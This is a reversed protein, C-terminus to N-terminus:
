DENTFSLKSDNSVVLRIQQGNSKVLSNVSEAGDVFQPVSVQYFDSIVNCIDIGANIQAATNLDSFPIGQYTCECFPKPTGDLNRRFMSWKVFSFHENVKDELIQCETLSYETALDIITDIRDLQEQLETKEKQIGQIIGQIKDYSEKKTKLKNLAVITCALTDIEQKLKAITEDDSSESPSEMEKEISLIEAKVQKYNENQKALQEYTQPTQESQLTDLYKTRESITEKTRTIKDSIEGLQENYADINDNIEKVSDKLESAKKIFTEKMKAIKSNFRYESEQMLEQLKEQPYFQGCTPCVNDNVDWEWRMSKIRNWEDAGDKMESEKEALTEKCRKILQQTSDYAKNLDSLTDEAESVLRRANRIDNEYNEEQSRSENRMSTEMNSLRKYAFDLKKKISALRITDISGAKAHALQENLHAYEENDKALQEEVDDWGEKEPLLKDIEALRVPIDELKGIVEKRTYGYHKIVAEASGRSVLEDNLSSLDKSSEACIENFDIPPVMTTLLARQKDWPMSAFYTPSSCMQFVQLGCFKDIEYSFDGATVNDGGIYYTFTNKVTGDRSVSDMLKRKIIIDVGDVSLLLEVSHPIEPIENGDGNKTKIGFKTRGKSDVGFLCWMVADFITTKGKGNGASITTHDAFSFEGSRIGKFNQLTVKKIKIQKAM